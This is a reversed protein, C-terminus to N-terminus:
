QESVVTWQGSDVVVGVGHAMKEGGEGKAGGKREMGLGGAVYGGVAEHAPPREVAIRVILTPIPIM